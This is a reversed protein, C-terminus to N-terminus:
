RRPQPPRSRPSRWWSAAETPPAPSRVQPRRPATPGKGTTSATTPTTTWGSTSSCGRPCSKPSTRSPDPTLRSRTAQGPRRWTVQECAYPYRAKALDAAVPCYYPYYDYNLAFGTGKPNNGCGYSQQSEAASTSEPKTGPPPPGGNTGDTNASLCGAHPSGTQGPYGLSFPTPTGKSNPDNPAQDNGYQVWTTNTAGHDGPSKSDNYGNNPNGNTTGGSEVSAQVNHCGPYTQYQPTNWDAGYWPCDQQPPSYTGGSVAFAAGAALVSLILGALGAVLALPAARRM